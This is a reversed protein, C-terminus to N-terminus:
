EQEEIYPMLCNAPEGARTYPTFDTDLRCYVLNTNIDGQHVRCETVNGFNDHYGM